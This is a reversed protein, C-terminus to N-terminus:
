LELIVWPDYGVNTVGGNNAYWLRITDNDRTHCIDFCSCEHNWSNCSGNRRPFWGREAYNRMRMLRDFKAGWYDEIDEDTKAIPVVQIQPVETASFRAVIYVIDFATPSELGLMAQVVQGYGTQQGSYTYESRVLNADLITNKLDWTRIARTRRHQLVFDIKGQTALMADEGTNKIRFVGISKHIIVFPIEVAWGYEEVRLLEWDDWEHSRILAYFLAITKDIGRIQTAQEYEEDWPYWKLLAMFGAQTAQQETKGEARAILWAGLGEHMATGVQAAFGSERPPRKEWVNLFEFKRACGDFVNDISHSTYILRVGEHKNPLIIQPQTM